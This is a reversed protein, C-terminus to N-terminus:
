NNQIFKPNIPNLIVRCVREAENLCCCTGAAAAAATHNFIEITWTKVGSL